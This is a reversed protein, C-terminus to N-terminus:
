QGFFNMGPNVNQIRTVDPSGIQLDFTNDLLAIIGYVSVMILMGVVGWIMHDKGENKEGGQNMTILFQVLGFVFLFFGASFLILLIPDVIYTEFRGIIAQVNQM